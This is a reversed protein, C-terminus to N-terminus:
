NFRGGFVSFNRHLGQKFIDYKFNLSIHAQSDLCTLEILCKGFKRVTPIIISLHSVNTKWSLQRRCFDLTHNSSQHFLGLEYNNIFLHKSISLFWKFFCNKVKTDRLIRVLPVFNISRKYFLEGRTPVIWFLDKNSTEVPIKASFSNWFWPVDNSIPRKPMIQIDIECFLIICCVANRSCIQM